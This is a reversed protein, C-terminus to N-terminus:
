LTLNCEEPEAFIDDVGLEHVKYRITPFELILRGKDIWNEFAYKAEKQTNFWTLGHPEVEKAEFR